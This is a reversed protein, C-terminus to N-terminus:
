SHRRKRDAGRGAESRRPQLSSVPRRLLGNGGFHLAPGLCLYKMSTMRLQIDMGSWQWVFLFWLCSLWYVLWSGWQTLLFISGDM